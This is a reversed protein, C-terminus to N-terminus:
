GDLDVEPNLPAGVELRARGAVVCIAGMGVLGSIVQVVDLGQGLVAWALGAAFVPNSSGIVSSVSVDVQNHAWNVLLHATGPILALMAIWMWSSAANVALREGSAFAFPLLVIAAVLTVWFTYEVTGAGQRARKSVLFYGTWALLAVVALLDGRVNTGHPIGGGAVVAAVGGIALATWGVTWRDVREHFLPRAVLMVLAPQLAGIVAADAVHTEDVAVCFCAMDACLLVGGPIATWIARLRLRQGTAVLVILFVVSSAALRYETLVLPPVHSLRIFIPAAGWGAAAFAVATIGLLAQRKASRVGQAHQLSSSAASRFERM